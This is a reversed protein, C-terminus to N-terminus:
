PDKGHPGLIGDIWVTFCFIGDSGFLFSSLQLLPSRGEGRLNKTGDLRSM